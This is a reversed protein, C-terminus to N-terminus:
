HGARNPSKSGAIANDAKSGAPLNAAHSNLKRALLATPKKGGGFLQGSFLRFAFSAAGDDGHRDVQRGLRNRCRRTWKSRCPGNL